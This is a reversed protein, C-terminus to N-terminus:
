LQKITPVDSTLVFRMNPLGHRQVESKGHLSKTKHIPKSPKIPMLIQKEPAALEAQQFCTRCCGVRTQFSCM